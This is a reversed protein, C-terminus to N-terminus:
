VSAHINISQYPVSIQHQPSHPEKGKLIRILGYRKLLTVDAHVNKFDRGSIKALAYISKPRQEKILHLLEMRKESLLSRVAELSTFCVNDKPAQSKKGSQASKFASIFEADAQNRTKIEINLTEM